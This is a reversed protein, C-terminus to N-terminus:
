GADKTFYNHIEHFTVEPPNPLGVEKAAPILQEDAFSQFEERTEWVDVILIGTDSKAIWHSLTGKRDGSTSDLKPTLQDYQSLTSGPWKQVVAVAM